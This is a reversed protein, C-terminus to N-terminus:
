EHPHRRASCAPSNRLSVPEGVCAEHNQLAEVAMCATEPHHRVAKWGPVNRTSMSCLDLTCKDKAGAWM